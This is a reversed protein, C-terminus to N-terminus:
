EVHSRIDGMKEAKWRMSSIGMALRLLVLMLLFLLM